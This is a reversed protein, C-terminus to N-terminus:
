LFIAHLHLKQMSAQGNMGLVLGLDDTTELFGNVTNKNLVKVGLFERFFVNVTLRQDVSAAALAQLHKCGIGLSLECCLM